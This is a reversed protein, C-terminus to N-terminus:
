GTSHVLTRDRGAQAIETKAVKWCLSSPIPHRGGGDDPATSTKKTSKLRCQNPLDLTSKETNPYNNHGKSFDNAPEHRLRQHLKDNSRDVIARRSLVVGRVCDDIKEKLIQDDSDESAWLKLCEDLNTTGQWAEKLAHRLLEPTFMVLGTAKLVDMRNSVEDVHASATKKQDHQKVQTMKKIKLWLDMAVDTQNTNDRCCVKKPQKM